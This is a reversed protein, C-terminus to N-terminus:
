LQEIIRILSFAKHLMHGEASKQLVGQRISHVQKNQYFFFLYSKESKHIM